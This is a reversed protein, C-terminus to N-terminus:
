TLVAETELLADCARIPVGRFSRLETGFVEKWGLAANLKDVSALDLMALVARNGYFMYNAGTPVAYMAKVLAQYLLKQYAADSMKALEVNAIRVVYRWDKVCLGQKVKYMHSYAQFRGGDNDYVTQEGLDKDYIGAKSGKPYIGFVSEPGWGIMWISTQKSAASGGASIVHQLYSSHTRAAWKGAPTGLVDYRPSLGHFRDPHEAIDGYFITTALEDSIGEIHPKNESLMFAATNGNLEALDVDVEGRDEMMGITETVQTTSSKTPRVGYNIRRWTPTPIDSRVTVLHGTPLNGEVMPIDQLIPNQKTLVEGIAAISGDPDLRQSLDLMNPIEASAYPVYAM